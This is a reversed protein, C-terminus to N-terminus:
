CSKKSLHIQRLRKTVFCSSRDHRILSATKVLLKIVVDFDSVRQESQAKRQKRSSMQPAPRKKQFKSRICLLSQTREDLSNVMQVIMM